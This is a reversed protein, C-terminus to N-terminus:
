SFGPLIQDPANKHRHGTFPIGIYDGRLHGFKEARRKGTSNFLPYM